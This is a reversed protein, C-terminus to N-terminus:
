RAIVGRVGDATPVPLWLAGGELSELPTGCRGPELEAALRPVASLDAPLVHLRVKPQPGPVFETFHVLAVRQTASEGAGGSRRVFGPVGCDSSRTFHAAFPPSWWLSETLWVLRGTPVHWAYLSNRGGSADVSMLFVLQSQPQPARDDQGAYLVTRGNGPVRRVQQAEILWTDGDAWLLVAAGQGVPLLRGRPLELRTEQGGALDKRVYGADDAARFVVFHKAGALAITERPAGARSRFPTATGAAGDVALCPVELAPTAFSCVAAYRESAGRGFWDADLFPLATTRIAGSGVDLSHVARLPHGQFAHVFHGSTFAQSTGTSLAQLTSADGPEVVGTTEGFSVLWRGDALESEVWTDGPLGDLATPRSWTGFTRLDPASAACGDFAFFRAHQGRNLFAPEVVRQTSVGPVELVPAGTALDLVQWAGSWTEHAFQQPDVCTGRESVSLLSAFRGEPSTIGGTM